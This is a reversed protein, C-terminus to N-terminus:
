FLQNKLEKRKASEVKWIHVDRKSDKTKVKGKYTVKVYDGVAVLTMRQDLVATGWIMKNGSGFLDIHYRASLDGERPLKQVLIGEIFEEASVPQWVSSEVDKPVEFLEKQKEDM